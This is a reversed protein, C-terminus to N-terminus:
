PFYIFRRPIWIINKFFTIVLVTASLINATDTKFVVVATLASATDSVCFAILVLLLSVSLNNFSIAEAFASLM